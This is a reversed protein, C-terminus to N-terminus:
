KKRILSPGIIPRPWAGAWNVITKKKRKQDSFQNSFYDTKLM